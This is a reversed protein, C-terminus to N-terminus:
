FQCVQCGVFHTGYYIVVFLRKDCGKFLHEYGLSTEHYYQLIEVFTFTCHTEEQKTQSDNQFFPQFANTM